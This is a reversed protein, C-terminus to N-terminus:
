QTTTKITYKNKILNLQYKTKNLKKKKKTLCFVAYSITPLSQLESTHEESREHRPDGRWSRSREGPRSRSAATPRRYIPLADHLSLTNGVTYIGTTARDSFFFFVYSLYLLLLRVLDGM